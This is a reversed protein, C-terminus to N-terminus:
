PSAPALGSALASASSATLLAVHPREFADAAIHEAFQALAPAVSTLHDGPVEVLEIRKNARMRSAVARSLALPPADATGVYVTLPVRVQELFPTLSRLQAEHPDRADFPVLRADWSSFSTPGYVGGITALRRFPVDGDVAMLACLGGGVSHGIAYLHDADVDPEQALFRAAAKADDLEGYLLEFAGGNGSEGRLTPVLVVFGRAVFPEAWALQDPSLAFGGHFVVVAPLREPEEGPGRPTTPPRALLAALPRGDSVYSAREWQVTGTVPPAPLSRVDPAPGTRVLKTPRARLEAFPAAAAANPDVPQAHDAAQPAPTTACAALALVSALAFTRRNRVFM